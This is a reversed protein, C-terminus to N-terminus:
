RMVIVTADIHRLYVATETYNVDWGGPLDLAAFNGGGSAFGNPADVVKYFTKGKDTAFSSGSALTLTLNALSQGADEFRVCGCGDADGMIDLSGRLDCPKRFTLTGYDGDFVPSIGGTVSLGSNYYILGTGEVRAVNQAVDPYEGSYTNFGVKGTAGVKLVTGSPLGNAARVQLEGSEVVTPGNYSSGAVALVFVKSNGGRVTIGGDTEGPAVGSGLPLNCFATEEVTEFVAGGALVNLSVGGWSNDNKAGLFKAKDISGVVPLPHIVGGDFNIECPYGSASEGIDFNRLCLTGGDAIDVASLDDGSNLRLTGLRMEGGAGVTLSAASGRANYWKVNPLNVRGYVEVQAYRNAQAQWDIGDVANATGGWTEEPTAIEAGAAVVLHGYASDYGSGNGGVLILVNGGDTEGTGDGVNFKGSSVRVVGSHVFLSSRVSLTGVDNTVGAGSNIMAGGGATSSSRREALFHTNTPWSGGEPLEGSIRGAVINTAGEGAGLKLWAGGAVSIPCAWSGLPALIKVDKNVSLTGAVALPGNGQFVYGAENVTFDGVDRQTNLTITKTSSGNFVADNPPSVNSWAVTDGAGNVWYRNSTNWTGNAPSQLWTYTDASASLVLALAAGSAVAITKPRKHM